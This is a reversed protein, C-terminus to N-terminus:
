VTVTVSNSGSKHRAISRMSHGIGDHPAQRDTQRDTRSDREYTTDFLTFMDEFEVSHGCFFLALSNKACNGYYM